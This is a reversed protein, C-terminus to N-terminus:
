GTRGGPDIAKTSRRPRRCTSCSCRSSRGDGRVHPAPRPSPPPWSRHPLSGRPFSSDRRSVASRRPGCPLTPRGCRRCPLGSRTPTSRGRVGVARLRAAASRLHRRVRGRAHDRGVAARAPVRRDPALRFAGQVHRAGGRCRAVMTRDAARRVGRLVGPLRSQRLARGGVRVVARGAGDRRLGRRRSAQDGSAVPPRVAVRRDLLGVASRGAGGARPAQHRLRFRVGPGRCRALTRDGTDFARVLAWAGVGVHLTLALDAYATTGEWLVTPATVFVAAGLWRPADLRRAWLAAAAGCAPLMAWHLLRAGVTGGTPLAAGLVLEWHLPYLAVYESVDDVPHGAALWRRPLELHYWLADYESEPALACFLAIGLALVVIVAAALELGRIGFSARSARALPAPAIRGARIAPVLAAIALVAAVACVVAPTYVGCWALALMVLGM